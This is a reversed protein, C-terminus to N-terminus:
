ADRVLRVMDEQEGGRGVVPVFVLEGMEEPKDIGVQEGFRVAKPFLGRCYAFVDETETLIGGPTQAAQFFVEAIGAALPKERVPMRLRNGEAQVVIFVGKILGHRGIDILKDRLLCTM